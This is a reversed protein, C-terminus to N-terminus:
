FVPLKFTILLCFRQSGGWAVIHGQPVEFVFIDGRDINNYQLNHCNFLSTSSKGRRSITEM